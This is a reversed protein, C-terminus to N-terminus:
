QFNMNVGKGNRLDQQTYSQLQDPNSWNLSPDSNVGMGMMQLPMTGWEDLGTLGGEPFGNVSDGNVENWLQLLEPDLQMPDSQPFYSADTSIYAPQSTVDFKPM